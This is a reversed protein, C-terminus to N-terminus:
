GGQGGKAVPPVFDPHALTRLSYAVFATTGLRRGKMLERGRGDCARSLASLVPISEMLLCSWSKVAGPRPETRATCVVPECPPEGEGFRALGNLFM